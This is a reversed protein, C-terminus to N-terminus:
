SEKMEFFLLALGGIAPILQLATSTAHLRGFASRRPDGEPLSSPSVGALESRVREIRGAVIVGAYASAALMALAVTTRLAFRSPRPGLVARAVLALIVIAGCAYSLLHFRRLTEGVIAGALMRGGSAPQASLVDFTAPAAIGGVAALGGVWVTLALLAAYRLAFM